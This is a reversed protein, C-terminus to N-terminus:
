TTGASEVSPADPILFQNRGQEKAKLLALDAVRFLSEPDKGHLPFVAGGQSITCTVEPQTENPHFKAEVIRAQLREMFRRCTNVDAEPMIVCFEDGGYRAIIDIARISSKLIAGMGRIIADGTQHGYQDNIGKLADLDFVVLALSRNHRRARDIEEDLRKSFYRQNALGTLSDTFSLAEMEEFSDANDILVRAAPRLKELHGVAATSNLDGLALLGARNDSLPFATLYKLGSQKLESLWETLPEQLGSIEEFPKVQDASVYHLISRFSTRSPAKLHDSIGCRAIHLDESRGRPEYFLAVRPVNLRSQVTEVLRPVLSEASRHRILKLIAAADTRDDASPKRGDEGQIRQQLKEYRSEHWKVHYAASLSHALNAVLLAFGPTTTEMTSNIFYVGYLNDRWFIPFFLHVNSEELKRYVPEALLPKLSVLPQPSFSERLRNALEPTFRVRYESRDFKSIGHYYNLELFGRQKRLFVIRDCGFASKLAQSVKGAVTLITGDVSNTRLFDTFESISMLNVIAAQRKERRIRTFLLFALYIVLIGLILILATQTTM